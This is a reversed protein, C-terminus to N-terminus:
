QVYKVGRERDPTIKAVDLTRRIRRVITNYENQSLGWLERVGAPDYGDQWATLIMQAEQDEKFLNDIALLTQVDVMNEEATRHEGAYVDMPSPVKGEDDKKRLEAELVPAEEQRHSKAWNSSISKMAGFLFGMLSAKTKDWRRTDALLDQVATQILDDGTKEMAKPGLLRVRRTAYLGLRAFDAASLAEIAAAIEIPTAAKEPPVRRTSESKM